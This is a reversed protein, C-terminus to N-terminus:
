AVYNVKNEPYAKTLYRIVIETPTALLKESFFNQAYFILDDSKKNDLM